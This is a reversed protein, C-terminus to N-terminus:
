EMVGNVTRLDGGYDDLHKLLVTYRKVREHPHHVSAQGAAAPGASIRYEFFLSQQQLGEKTKTILHKDAWLLAWHKASQKQMMM